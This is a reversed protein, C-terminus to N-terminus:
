AAACSQGAVSLPAIALMALTVHRYWAKWTRVEYQDIGALDGAEALCDDLGRGARVVEGLEAPATGEPLHALRYTARQRTAGEREVLLVYEFGHAPRIGAYGGRLPVAVPGPTWKARVGGAVGDHWGRVVDSAPITLVYGHRSATLWALFSRDRGYEVGGTVWAFPVRAQVARRIIAQALDTKAKGSATAPIGAAHCRAPDRQWAPPLYLERDILGRGTPSVYAAFVGVQCNELRGAAESYQLGVGVSSTGKKVIAMEGLSLVGASHGLREVLYDRVVNRVGGANWHARNLLRQTRWPSPDGIERAIRWGNRRQAQRLLAEAYRVAQQYPETRDFHCRILEALGSRRFVDDAGALRVAAEGGDILSGRAPYRIANKPLDYALASVM